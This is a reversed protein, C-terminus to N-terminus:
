NEEEHSSTKWAMRRIRQKTLGELEHHFISTWHMLLKHLFNICVNLAQLLCKNIFCPTEPEKFIQPTEKKGTIGLIWERVSKNPCLFYLKM